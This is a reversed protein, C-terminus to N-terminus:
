TLTSPKGYPTILAKEMGHKKGLAILHQCESASLM